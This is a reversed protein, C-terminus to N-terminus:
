HNAQSMFSLMLCKKPNRRQEAWASRALNLILTLLSNLSCVISIGADILVYAAQLYPM